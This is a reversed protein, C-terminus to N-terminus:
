SGSSVREIRREVTRVTDAFRSGPIMAAVLLADRFEDVDRKSDLLVTRLGKSRLRALQRAGTDPASMPVGRFLGDVRRAVGLGWWGGDAAPGLVADCEPAHLLELAHELDGVHLQPTDMGVLLVPGEVPRFAAALRDAFPGDVQPRTGFAAPVWPPVPGDIVLVRRRVRLAAVTDLTDAFAAAAIGAAQRPTCPPCLRTKVRGPRPSKAMVLVTADWSRM